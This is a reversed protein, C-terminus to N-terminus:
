NCEKSNIKHSINLTDYLNARVLMAYKDKYSTKIIIKCQDIKHMERKKRYTIIVANPYQQMFNSINHERKLIVIKKHLRGIFHFQNHYKGDHAIMIGQQQLSAIKQSFLSLNQEKLINFIAFHAVFIFTLTSIAITQIARDYTIFHKKVLYLGTCFLLFASILFPTINFKYPISEPMIFPAIAFIIATVIYFYGVYDSSNKVRNITSSIRGFFLAFASIEPLIYHIQKGSIFSFIIFVSLFWVLLMKLGYDMSYQKLSAYFTKYTFWPLFLLPLIPLYWWIPRQHAFSQVMRNASQGWFIANQYSEGGAIGAPIAWVLAISVGGLFAFGLGMYFSKNLKAKSWYRALLALPLIHVLIVPGKTLIGFGISLSILIFPVVGKKQSAQVIGFIGVLIWFTLIIDFMILSNFFAFVITGSLILVSNKAGKIDEHWLTLYIKYTLMLNGLGFLLPIFRITIENVGFLFWNLHMLWFLFPPKHHYPEGNLLPVLFSNKDWMEWAVSIYRTEDIILLPRFYIGIIVSIILILFPIFLNKFM